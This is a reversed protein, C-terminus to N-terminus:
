RATQARTPRPSLRPAPRGPLALDRPHDRDRLTGRLDSIAGDRAMPLAIQDDPLGVVGEDARQDLALRPIHHQGIQAAVGPSLGHGPLDSLLDNPQRLM